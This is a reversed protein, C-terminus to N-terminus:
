KMKKIEKKSMEATILETPHSFSLNMEPQDSIVSGNNTFLKVPYNVWTVGETSTEWRSQIMKVHHKKESFNFGSEALDQGPFVTEGLAVLASNPALGSLRTFTGDEHYVEIFNEKEFNDLTNESEKQDMQLASIIGKRPCKVATQEDVLFLVGTYIESSSSQPQASKLPRMDVQKAPNLPILYQFDRDFAPDVLGKYLQTNYRFSTKENSYISQLEILKRMGPEAVLFIVNGELSKLNTLEAFELRITQPIESSNISKFTLNRLHDQEAVLEVQAFLTHSLLFLVLFTFPLKLKTM